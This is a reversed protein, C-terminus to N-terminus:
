ALLRHLLAVLGAVALLFVASSAGCGKGKKPPPPQQNVPRKPAPKGGPRGPPQPRPAAGPAPKVGPSGPAPAPRAAPSVPPRAPVVPAGAPPAPAPSGVPTGPTMSHPTKLLQTGGGKAVPRADDTPEFVLQAEGFRVVAGPALPADGKVQEGDVFTGNTSDLDVLVWVGERRQLKAHSTSVSPDPLVLDNYDARGINVVPTRVVLRQGILGGTRVLFSALPGGGGGSGTPPEVAEMGHVTRKLRDPSPAGAAPPPPAAQPPSAAPGPPPPPAATAPAVDAYFRFQEEGIRIVDARALIRQGQVQEENVFTGNTSSDVVLYGKPTHVIEAHRRSVDKGTVVVDCGAERGFVLSAAAIVYERGDTLSVVRGGSTGIAAAKTGTKAPGDGPQPALVQVYQTSGSRREDVFTLEHEGVEVKDGHLLPTPEAGLRVGNILVEAAPAAKRIIVQGDAQGQVLAHRALVGPGSLAIACGADSGLTVEGVPITFKRSGLELLSM